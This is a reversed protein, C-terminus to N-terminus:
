ILQEITELLSAETVGSGHFKWLHPLVLLFPIVVKLSLLNDFWEIEPWHPAMLIM